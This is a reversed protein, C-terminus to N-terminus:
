PGAIGPWTLLTVHSEGDPRRVQYDRREYNSGLAQLVDCLADAREREWAYGNEVIKLPSTYPRGVSQVLAVSKRAAHTMKTLAAAIDVTRYLANACLVVDARLGDPAALWDTPISEVRMPHDWAADFAQRMAPSPEVCTIASLSPALLRTFAGTGSGIELLTGDAPVLSRLDAILDTACAALPSREDYNPAYDSWFAEDAEADEWRPNDAVSAEWAARWFAAAGM